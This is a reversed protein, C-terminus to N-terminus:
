RIPCQGGACEQELEDETYCIGKLDTIPQVESVLKDYEEKTIEELPAQLFGHESHLLFSVAKVSDNYNKRLWEKIEPLEEKRYYVTVSVANDSWETQMRKVYELQKVATCDKALVTGDPFRM